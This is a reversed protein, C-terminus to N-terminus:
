RGPCDFDIDTFDLHQSRRALQRQWHEPLLFIWFIYPEFEAEQIQTALLQVLVDHGAAGDDVRHALPHLGLAEELELGGNQRCRRWFPRPIKQHWGSYM